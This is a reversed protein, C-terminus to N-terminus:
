GMAEALQGPKRRESEGEGPEAATRAGTYGTHAPAPSHRQATSSGKDLSLSGPLESTFLSRSCM